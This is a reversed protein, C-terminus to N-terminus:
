FFSETKNNICSYFAYIIEGPALLIKQSSLTNYAEIPTNLVLAYLAEEQKQQILESADGIQWDTGKLM